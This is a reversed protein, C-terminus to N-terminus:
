YKDSLALETIAGLQLQYKNTSLQTDRVPVKGVVTVLGAHLLFKVADKATQEGIGADRAIKTYSPWCVGTDGDARHAMVWLVLKRIGTLRAHFVADTYKNAM